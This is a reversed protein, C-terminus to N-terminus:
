AGNGRWPGMPFVGRVTMHPSLGSPWLVSVPSGQHKGGGAVHSASFIAENFTDVLSLSKEKHRTPYDRTEFPLCDPAPRRTPLSVLLDWTALESVTRKHIIQM